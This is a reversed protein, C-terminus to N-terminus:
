DILLKQGLTALHGLVWKRFPQNGIILKLDGEQCAVVHHLAKIKSVKIRKRRAFM